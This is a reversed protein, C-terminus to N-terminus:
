ERHTAAQDAASWAAVWVSHFIGTDCLFLLKEQHHACLQDFCTSFNFYIYQSTTHVQNAEDSVSEDSGIETLDM